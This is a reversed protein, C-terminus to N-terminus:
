AIHLDAVRQLRQDAHAILGSAAGPDLDADVLLNAAGTLYEGAAQLRETAGNAHTRGLSALTDIFEHTTFNTDRRGYLRAIMPGHTAIIQEFTSASM